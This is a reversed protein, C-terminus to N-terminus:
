TTPKDPGTSGGAQAAHSARQQWATKVYPEFAAYDGQGTWASQLDPRVQDYAKGQYEPRDHSEWGYRYAPAAQEFPHRANAPDSEHQKRFEPEQADFDIAYGTASGALTGVAVGIAAGIPGGVATGLVAGIVAGGAGGAAAGLVSENDVREKDAM